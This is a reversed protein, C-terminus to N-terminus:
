SNLGNCRLELEVRREIETMGVVASWVGYEYWRLVTYGLSVFELSLGWVVVVM